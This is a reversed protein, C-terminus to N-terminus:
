RAVCRAAIAETTLGKLRALGVLLPALNINAVAVQEPTSISRAPDASPLAVRGVMIGHLRHRGDGRCVVASGSAFEFTQHDPFAIRPDLWWAATEGSEPKPHYTGSFTALPVKGFHTVRAGPTSHTISTVRGARLGLDRHYAVNVTDTQCTPPTARSPSSGHRPELWLPEIDDPLPEQLRLLLLDEWPDPAKDNALRRSFDHYLFDRVRARMRFRGGHEVDPVEVLLGRPHATGQGVNMAVHAVTVIVDRFCLPTATVVLSSPHPFSVRLSRSFHSHAAQGLSARVDAYAGHLRRDPATTAAVPHLAAARSAHPPPDALLAGMCATCLLATVM